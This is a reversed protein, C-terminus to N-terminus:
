NPEVGRGMGQGRERAAAMPLRQGEVLAARREANHRQWQLRAAQREIDQREKLEQCERLFRTRALELAANDDRKIQEIRESIRTRIQAGLKEHERDHKRQVIARRAEASFAALFGGLADGDLARDRFVAAGHWIRGLASREGRDFEYSEERHRKFMAAWQPKADEKIAAISFPIAKNMEQTMAAKEDRWSAKLAAWEIGQRVHMDRGQASLSHAQDDYRRKLFDRRRDPTEQKEQEYVNRPKRRADVPEGQARKNANALRGETVALGQEREFAQAWQSLKRTDNSILAPRGDQKSAASIGTEPDILNVMVHVHRHATDRHSVALAQHKDLGLAKLAGEVAARQLEDSPTDQPPFNLSFHYATNVAPKGKKIGAAEKLEDASLATAAMLRWALDPSAGDLNFSTAWAVRDASAARDHDHLLYAALGKFSKGIGIKVPNM